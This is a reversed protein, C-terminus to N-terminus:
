QSKTRIPNSEHVKISMNEVSKLNINNNVYASGNHEVEYSYIAKIISLQSIKKKACAKIPAVKTGDLRGSSLLKKNTKSLKKRNEINPRKHKNNAVISKTNINQQM